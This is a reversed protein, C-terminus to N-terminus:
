SPKHWAPRVLRQLWRSRGDRRRSRLLDHRGYGHSLMLREAEIGAVHYRALADLNAQQHRSDAEDRETDDLQIDKTGVIRM